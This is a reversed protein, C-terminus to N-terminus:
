SFTSCHHFDRITQPKLQWRLVDCCSKLLVMLRFILLRYIFLVLSRTTVTCTHSYFVTNSRCKDRVSTVSWLRFGWPCLRAHSKLRLAQKAKVAVAGLACAWSFCSQGCLFEAAELTSDLVTPSPFLVSYTYWTRPFAFPMNTSNVFCSEFNLPAELKSM